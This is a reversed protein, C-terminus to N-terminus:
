PHLHKRYGKPPCSRKSDASENRGSNTGLRQNGVLLWDWTRQEGADACHRGNTDEQVTGEYIPGETHKVYINDQTQKWTGGYGIDGEITGDNNFTVESTPYRVIIQGDNYNDRPFRGTCEWDTLITWKGAITSESEQLESAVGQNGSINMTFQQGNQPAFRELFAIPDVWGLDGMEGYDSEKIYGRWLNNDSPYDKGPHIGFHLQSPNYENIFGLVDGAKVSGVSHPSNIHGYLAKFQSGDSATFLAVLAGGKTGWPGYGSIDTRSETVEGDAIAYVPDGMNGEFDQGLHISPQSNPVGSPEFRAGFGVYKNHDGSDTPLIWGNLYNICQVNGIMSVMSSLIILILIYHRKAM